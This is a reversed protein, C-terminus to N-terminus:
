QVNLYLYNKLLQGSYFKQYENKRDHLTKQRHRFKISLETLQFLASFLDATPKKLAFPTDKIMYNRVQVKNTKLDKRLISENALTRLIFYCRCEVSNLFETTSNIWIKKGRLKSIALFRLMLKTM